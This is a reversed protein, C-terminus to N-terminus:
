GTLDELMQRMKRALAEIQRLGARTEEDYQAENLLLLQTEALIASLPNSLDHRVQRLREPLDPM